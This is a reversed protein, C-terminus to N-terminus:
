IMGRIQNILIQIDKDTNRSFDIYISRSSGDEQLLIDEDDSTFKIMSIHIDSRVFDVQEQPYNQNLNDFCERAILITDIFVRELVDALVKLRYLPINRRRTDFMDRESTDESFYEQIQLDVQEVVWEYGDERLRNRIHQEFEIYESM